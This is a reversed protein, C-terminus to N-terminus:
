VYSDSFVSLFSDWLKSIWKWNFVVLYQNSSLWPFGSVSVSNLLNLASIKKSLDIIKLAKTMKRRNTMEGLGIINDPIEAKNFFFLIFMFPSKHTQIRKVNFDVNIYIYMYVYSHTNWQLFIALANSVNKDIAFLVMLWKLLEKSAITEYSLSRKCWKLSPFLKINPDLRKFEIDFHMIIKCTNKIKYLMVEIYGLFQTM